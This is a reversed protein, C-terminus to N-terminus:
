IRKSYGDNLIGVDAGDIIVVVGTITVEVVVVGVDLDVYTEFVLEVVTIVGVVTRGGRVVVVVTVVGDVTRPVFVTLVVRGDVINVTNEDTAVLETRRVLLM